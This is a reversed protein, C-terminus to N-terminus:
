EPDVEVVQDVLARHAQAVSSFDSEGAPNFFCDVVRSGGAAPLNIPLCEKGFADQIRSVLGPLDLDPADIKNVVVMRCLDRKAAWNMMRSTSLEIGTQANVVVIVTDAAQLSSMAQ